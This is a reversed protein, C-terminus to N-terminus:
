CNEVRKNLCSAPIDVLVLETGVCLRTIQQAPMQYADTSQFHLQKAIFRLAIQRQFCLQRNDEIARMLCLVSGITWYFDRDKEHAEVRLLIQHVRGAGYVALVGM